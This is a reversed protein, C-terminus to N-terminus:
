KKKDKDGASKFAEAGVTVTDGWFNLDRHLDALDEELDMIHTGRQIDRVDRYGGYISEGIDARVDLGKGRLDAGMDAVGAVMSADEVINGFGTKLMDAQTASGALDHQGAAGYAKGWGAAASAAANAAATGIDSALGRRAAAEELQAVRAQERAGREAAAQAFDAERSLLATDGRAGHAAGMAAARQAALVPNIDIHSPANLLGTRMADLGAIRDQMAADYWDAAGRVESGARNPDFEGADALVQDNLASQDFEIGVAELRDAFPDVRDQGAITDATGFFKNATHERLIRM